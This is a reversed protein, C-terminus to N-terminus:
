SWWTWIGGRQKHTHAFTCIQTHTHTRTHQDGLSFIVPVQLFLLLFLLLPFPPSSIMLPDKSLTLIFLSSSEMQTHGPAPGWCLWNLWKLWRTRPYVAEPKHRSCSCLLSWQYHLQACPDSPCNWPGPKKRECSSLFFTSFHSRILLCAFLCLYGSHPSASLLSASVPSICLFATWLSGFLQSPFHDAQM